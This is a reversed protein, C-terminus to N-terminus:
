TFYERLSINYTSALNFVDVMSIKRSDIGTYYAISSQGGAHLNEMATMIVGYLNIGHGNHGDLGPCRCRCAHIVGTRM